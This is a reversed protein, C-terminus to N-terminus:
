RERRLRHAVGSIAFGAVVLIATQPVWNLLTDSASHSVSDIRVFNAISVVLMVAGLLFDIPGMRWQTETSM